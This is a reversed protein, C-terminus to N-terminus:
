RTIKKNDVSFTPLLWQRQGGGQEATGTNSASSALCKPCTM